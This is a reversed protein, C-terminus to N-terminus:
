SIRLFRFTYQKTYVIQKKESYGPWNMSGDEIGFVQFDGFMKKKVCYDSLFYNTVENIKERMMKNTISPQWIFTFEISATKTTINETSETITRAYSVIPDSKELVPLWDIFPIWLNATMDIVIKDLAITQIM